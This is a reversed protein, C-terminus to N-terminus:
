KEQALYENMKAAVQKAAEDIKADGTWAKKFSETELNNWKSTDKSVPYPKSYSLMDIFVQLKFQPTSKVWEAQTGNYAPIVTGTKAQIDAAEKSGLFRVFEWAEKPHKTKASIVNALGHIVVGKQKNRPLEAVDVKDKTYENKAFNIANWSGGYIMAVKGSEFLKLPTTDTMQALTPSVKHVHILDTWFKLGEITEPKDYGSKKKDESIIYGGSQLITNYYGEQSSMAAAVGWVGKGPDTLKKAAEVLSDWTWSSDPYKVGAQDFMTKNYWLGITDFDKPIGYLKKDVTYLNVLSEPYNKLDLGSTKAQDELPLLMGNSAYKVINPGNMWFVDPLTAGIAATEMKQWYDKSAPTLEIKVDINPHKEKFKKIIEEMAPVQNRDWLAYSITAQKAAEKTGGQKTEGTGGASQNSCGAAAFVAATLMVLGAKKM